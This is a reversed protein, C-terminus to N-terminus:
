VHYHEEGLWEAVGVISNSYSKGIIPILYTYIYNALDYNSLTRLYDRNTINNKKETSQKNIVDNTLNSM